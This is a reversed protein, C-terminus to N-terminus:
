EGMAEWQDPTVGSEMFALETLTCVQGLVEPLFFWGTQWDHVASEFHRRSCRPRIFMSAVGGFISPRTVMVGDESWKYDFKVGV